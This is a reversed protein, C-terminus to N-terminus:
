TIIQEQALKEMYYGNYDLRTALNAIHTEYRRSQTLVQILEKIHNDFTSQFKDVMRQYGQEMIATKVHEAKKNLREQRRRLYNADFNDHLENDDDDDYLKGKGYYNEEAQAMYIRFLNQDTLLCEKLCEDQFNNHLHMVEDITKVKKLSEKFRHFNPELVEVVM